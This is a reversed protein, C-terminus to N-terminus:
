NLVIIHHCLNIDVTLKDLEINPHQTEILTTRNYIM